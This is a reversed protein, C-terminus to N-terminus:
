IVVNKKSKRTDKGKLAVNFGEVLHLLQKWNSKPKMTKKPMFDQPTYPKKRNSLFTAITSAIVGTRYDENEECQKYRKALADFERPTLEWFENESLSM